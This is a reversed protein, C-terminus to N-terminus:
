RRRRVRSLMAAGLGRVADGKTVKPRSELVAFDQSRIRRCIALGGQRFLEVTLGVRGPLRRSLDRGVQLRSEADAVLDRLTARLQPTTRGFAITADTAGHTAMADAPLYRRGIAWDRAVDQWFNALQLGTCIADSDAANRDDLHGAIALVLRGVPNASRSSYDVLEALSDYRTKTQDQEFASILDAFPQRDLGCNGITERLAVFVPHRAKGAIGDDLLSRWWALLELSRKPDDVEDGLDDAWRSFAYVDAIPQRMAAPMLRTLVPFNEYHSRALDRAYAQSDALSLTQDSHPGFRAFDDAFRGPRIATPEGRGSGETM